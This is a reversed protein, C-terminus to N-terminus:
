DDDDSANGAEVADVYADEFADQSDQHGTEEQYFEQIEDSSPNPM